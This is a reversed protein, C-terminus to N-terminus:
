DNVDNVVGADFPYECVDGTYYCSGDDITADPDYNIATEDMCGLIDTTEGLQLVGEYPAGGELVHTVM